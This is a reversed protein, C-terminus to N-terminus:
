RYFSSAAEIAEKAQRAQDIRELQESVGAKEEPKNEKPSLFSFYLFIIITFTILLALLGM